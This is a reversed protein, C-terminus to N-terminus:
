LFVGFEPIFRVDVGGFSQPDAGTYLTHDFTIDNEVGEGGGGWQSIRAVGLATLLASICFSISLFYFTVSRSPPEKKKCRKIKNFENRYYDNSNKIKRELSEEDDDVYLGVAAVEQLLKNM